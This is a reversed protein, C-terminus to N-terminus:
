AQCQTEAWPKHDRIMANLITLLKRMCAALAAKPPKGAAILRQYFARIVPNHRSAVLCAMYLVARIDRRGGWITRKGRMQGSDRNLPAVGVLSAIARRDLRGLEPLGAILATASAPGVGPVSMLLDARERWVPDAVVAERLATEVKDIEGHLWRVHAAIGRCLAASAQRHRARKLRNSEATRMGVLQRRRAILGALEARAADPRVRTKPAVAEAFRAIVYADLRDTKALLGVARAFDRVQRPNVVATEFGASALLRACPEELGGTAELVVLPAGLDSLCALLRSMGAKTHKLTLREDSPLVHVDLRAKSVDVGVFVPPHNLSQM